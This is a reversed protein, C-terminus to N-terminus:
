LGLSKYADAVTSTAAPATLKGALAGAALSSGLKLWVPANKDYEQIAQPAAGAAMGSVMRPGATVPSGALSPIVQSLAAQGIRGAPTQPEYPEVPKGGTAQNLTSIGSFIGKNIEEPSYTHRTLFGPQNPIYDPAEGPVEQPRDYYGRMMADRDMAWDGVQAVTHPLGGLYGVGKLIGTAMNQGVDSVYGPWGRNDPFVLEYVSPPNQKDDPEGRCTEYGDPIGDSM